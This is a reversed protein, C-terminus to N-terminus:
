RRRLLALSFYPAAAPAQSFPRIRESSQSAAEVYTAAFKGNTKITRALRARHRGVKLIAASEVNGLLRALRKSPMSAPAILFADAGLALPVHAAAAAAMVSSIGPVIEPTHGLAGLARALYVFSGYLMPDGLCLIAVDRGQELEAVIRRAVRGYAARASAARARLPLRFPFEICHKRIHAAVIARARSGSRADAPYAIVKARRVIRRAKLTLLEPDGPGAGVGYAIGPRRM